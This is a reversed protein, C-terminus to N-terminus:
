DTPTLLLPFRREFAICENPDPAECKSSYLYLSSTLLAMAINNSVKVAERQAILELPKTSNGGQSLGTIEGLYASFRDQPKKNRFLISAQAQQGNEDIYGINFIYEHKSKFLGFIAIPMIPMILLSAAAMAGDPKTGKGNKDWTTIKKTPIVLKDDIRIQDSSLAVKCKQNQPLCIADFSQDSATAAKDIYSGFFLLTYLPVTLLNKMRCALKITYLVLNLSVERKTELGVYM